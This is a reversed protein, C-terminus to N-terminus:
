ITRGRPATGKLIAKHLKKNRRKALHATIIRRHKSEPDDIKDKFNRLGTLLKKIM